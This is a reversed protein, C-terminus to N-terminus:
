QSSVYESVPVHSSLGEGGTGNENDDQADKPADLPTEDHISVQGHEVGFGM